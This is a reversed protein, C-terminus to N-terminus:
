QIRLVYQLLVKRNPKSIPIAQREIFLRNGEFATMKSLNIIYSRHVRLFPYTIQEEFRNLTHAVLYKKHKTMVESYNHQAKIWLIDSLNVKEFRHQKKIFFADKIMPTNATM